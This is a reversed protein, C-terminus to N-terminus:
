EPETARLAACDGALHALDNSVYIVGNARYMSGNYTRDFFYDTVTQWPERRGTDSLVSGPTLGAYATNPFWWLHALEGVRTFGAELQDRNGAEVSQSFLIVDVDPPETLPTNNLFRFQLNPYDRLYWRWQWAFNDSEGTFVRLSERGLGSQHAIRNICETAYSTEQGTQSYVLLESPREFGAYSYSARGSVFVTFALLVTLGGLAGAAFLSAIRPRTLVGLAGAVASVAPDLQLRRTIVAAAGMLLVLGGITLWFWTDSSLDDSRVFRLVGLPILLVGGLGVLYAVPAFRADIVAEILSGIVRAAVLAMPVTIGVLLWPMREGAFSFLAFTLVAWAVLSRDFLNGKIALYAGGLLAPIVVLFEYTSLGVIYYYWPQGAREVPQQAIWYGLSGWLGTFFGDWNTFISTFLPLWIAIFVAALLPWRRRDWLMGIVISLASLVIVVFAAIYEGGGVPAGTEAAARFVEGTAIKPNNPDANVLIVDLPGQLLGVLPAWLPLSLTGLVILLDGTPPLDSLRARGRVWEWLAPASLVLLFLGFSGALLFASEKTTYALAWIAAWAVLLGTRPREVYHWLIALLAVAWVAMYIDNRIFRGFYLVSPSATLLVAATLAGYTGLQRRLFFPLGVLATGFLAPLLRATVDSSGFVAFTASAGHFLFPGHTLPTHHYGLGESFRWSYWAHLIEDYHLSRGGLDWMRMGFAVVMIGIFAYGVRTPRPLAPRYTRLRDLQQEVASAM